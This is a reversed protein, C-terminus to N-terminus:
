KRGRVFIDLIGRIAPYESEFDSLPLPNKGLGMEVTFGPRRYKQLFWDKFGGGVAMPEPQAVRYGSVEAMKEAIVLGEPPKCSNFDWYLERGQSHLALVRDFSSRRCLSCLARTEPESEADEGGYRTCAPGTIGAAIERAKVQQWCAAFNHNIDVGRANAQWRRHNPCLKQASGSFVGASDFGNLAIETGDPNVCPVIAVCGTGEGPTLEGAFKLAALVTLYESGHFGAAILTRESGGQLELAFISRGCLSRGIEFVNMKESLRRVEGVQFRYDPIVM